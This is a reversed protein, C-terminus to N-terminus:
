WQGPPRSLWVAPMKIVGSTHITLYWASVSWRSGNNYLIKSNSKDRTKPQRVRQRRIQEPYFLIKMGEHVSDKESM